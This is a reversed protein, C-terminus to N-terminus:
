WTTATPSGARRPNRRCPFASRARTKRTRRRRRRRLRRLAVAAAFKLFKMCEEKHGHEPWSGVSRRTHASIEAGSGGACSSKVDARRKDARPRSALMYCYQALPVAARCRGPNDSHQRPSTVRKSGSSRKGTSRMADREDGDSPEVDLGRLFTRMYETNNSKCAPSDQRRRAAFGSRGLGGRAVPRASGRLRRPMAGTLWLGLRRARRFLGRRGIAVLAALRLERAFRPIGCSCGILPAM